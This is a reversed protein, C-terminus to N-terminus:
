TEAGGDTPLPRRKVISGYWDFGLTPMPSGPDEGAQVVYVEDCRSQRAIDSLAATLAEHVRGPRGPEVAIM